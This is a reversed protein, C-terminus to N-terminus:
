IVKRLRERINAVHDPPMDYLKRSIRKISILRMQALIASAKNGYPDTFNFYFSLEKQHSSLPICWFVENTFKKVILVPRSFTKASGNQESGINKGLIAIWVEGRKPFFFGPTNQEIKKKVENWKDFLNEM